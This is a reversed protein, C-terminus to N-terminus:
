LRVLQGGCVFTRYVWGAVDAGDALVSEQVNAGSRVICDHGVVAFPGVQAGQEITAGEAIYCPGEIRAGPHVSRADSIYVGGERPRVPAAPFLAPNGLVDWTAQAYRSPTGLDAWFGAHHVAAVAEGRRLLETIGSRVLCSNGEPLLEFISPEVVYVGAFSVAAGPSDRLSTVSSGDPGPVCAIFHGSEDVRVLGEGPVADRVVLTALAGTRRHVKLLHPVDLDLVCDGNAILVMGRPRGAARWVGAAGGGTGLLEREVVVDIRHRGGRQADLRHVDNQAFAVVQDALHHANMALQSVGAGAMVDLAYAAIPRDLFPLLPKPIRDTLPQFRTGLGAALVIGLEPVM